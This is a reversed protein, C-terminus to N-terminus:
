LRRAKNLKCCVTVFSLMHAKPPQCEYIEGVLYAFAATVIEQSTTPPLNYYVIDPSMNKDAIIKEIAEMVTAARSYVCQDTSCIDIKRRFLRYPRILNVNHGYNWLASLNLVSCKRPFRFNFPVYYEDVSNPWAFVKWQSASPINAPARVNTTTTTPENSSQVNIRCRNDIVQVMKQEFQNFFTFMEDKTIPQIGDISFNTKLKDVVVGACDEPLHNYRSITEQKFDFLEQQLSKIENTNRNM